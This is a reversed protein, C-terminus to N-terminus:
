RACSPDAPTNEGSYCRQFHGFDSQDVDGDEDFDAPIAGNADATMACGDPLGNPHYPLAPGTLCAEFINLDAADVFGDCQFDAPATQYAWRAVHPSVVSGVTLFYGGVYLAPGSGDDFVAMARVEGDAGGGFPVWSEGNWQALNRIEPPGAAHFYGGACLAPGTGLDFVELVSV